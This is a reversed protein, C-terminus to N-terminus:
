QREVPVRQRLYDFFNLLFIVHHQTQEQPGEAPMLAAIRKGDPALDYNTMLAANALRKDSWARPKDALFSDGKVTYSAVMIQNDTLSMVEINAGDNGANAMTFVTFLVAKGGPLIQPWRHAIEGPSLESIRSPAGGESPIRSLGSNSTLAAIINGDAGWSGGAVFASNCLPVSAGGQVSVKKLKGVTAFAVWQGDPSFFRAFAGDAGTLETARPQDLRWALSGRGPVICSGHAM